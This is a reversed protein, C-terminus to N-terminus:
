LTNVFAGVERAVEQVLTPEGSAGEWDELRYSQYWLYRSDETDMLRVLLAPGVDCAVIKSQLTYTPVVPSSELIVRGPLRNVLEGFLTSEMAVPLLGLSENTEDQMQEVLIMVSEQEISQSTMWAAGVLILGAAAIGAVALRHKNRKADVSSLEAILRYGRRAETKIYAPRQTDDALLQRLQYIATSVSDRGVVRDHWVEDLIHDGSVVDAARDALLRLVAMIRPDPYRRKKWFSKRSRIWGAVWDVQWEGINVQKNM